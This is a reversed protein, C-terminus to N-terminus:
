GRAPRRPAASVRRHDLERLEGVLEALRLEDGLCPVGCAQVLEAGEGSPAPRLPVSAEAVVDASEHAAIGAEDASEGRTDAAAGVEVLPRAPRRERADVEDGAVVPEREVVEHRVVPLVVLRVAFRVTVARVVVQAPVAADLTLSGVGRDVPQPLTLDPVERHDQEDRLAHRHDEAAVLRPTCLPPVVVRPVLRVLDGPEVPVPDRRVLRQPPEPLQQDVEALSVRDQPAVREEAGAIDAPVAAQEIRGAPVVARGTHEREREVAHM